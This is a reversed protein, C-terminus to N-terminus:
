LYEDANIWACKFVKWAFNLVDVKVHEPIKENFVHQVIDSDPMCDRIIYDLINQLAIRNHSSAWEKGFLKYIQEFFKKVDADTNEDILGTRVKLIRTYEDARNPEFIQIEKKEKTM